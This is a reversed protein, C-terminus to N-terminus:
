SLRSLLHERCLLLCDADIVNIDNYQAASIKTLSLQNRAHLRENTTMKYGTAFVSKGNLTNRLDLNEINKHDFGFGLVLVRNAPYICSKAKEIQDLTTRQDYILQINNKLKEARSYVDESHDGYEVVSGSNPNSQWPLRGISGYVHVIELRSAIEAIEAERATSGLLRTLNEHLFHELSRDYNFTVIKIGTGFEAKIAEVTDLGETLKAFLYNYWDGQIGAGGPYLSYKERRLLEVIIATRGIDLWQQNLNLFKDISAATLGNLAEAFANAARTHSEVFRLDNNLLTATEAAATPLNKRIGEVLGDSLPFDYPFSAGAGLILTQLYGNGV